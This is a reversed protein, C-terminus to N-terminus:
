EDSEWDSLEPRSAAFTYAQSISFGNSGIDRDFDVGTFNFTFRDVVTLGNDRAAKDYFVNLFFSCSKQAKSYAIEDIVAYCDTFALANAPIGQTEIASPPSFTKGTKLVLAMIKGRAM